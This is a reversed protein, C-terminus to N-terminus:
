AVCGGMVALLTASCVAGLVKLPPQLSVVASADAAQPSAASSGSSAAWSAKRWRLQQMLALPVGQKGLRM